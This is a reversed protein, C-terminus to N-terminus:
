CHQRRVAKVDLENIVDEIAALDQATPAAMTSYGPILAGVQEFGYEEAFYVFLAHDTILKRNEESIQAVQERIWSDLADLETEYAEANAAYAQANEPDAESLEHEINHVWTLVNNPSTWTHPDVGEHDHEEGEHEDHHEEGEREDHHEKGEPDHDHEGEFMLFDIGESVHIVKDQSGASEILPDLFEELGAGNAFVLDAETVKAVDQPTPDFSHPDTGVPLLVTLDILDGGIQSVGDGVITTTALVKLKGAINGEETAPQESQSNCAALVFITILSLLSILIANREKM